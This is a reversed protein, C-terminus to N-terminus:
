SSENIMRWATGDKMEDIHFQCYSLHSVYRIMEDENYTNLNDIESLSTNCMTTAANPGLAIAPVGHMLAEIAAISNYTVLCHVDEQLAQSLTNYTIREARGPKLRVEIPRDTILKLEKIIIDTWEKQYPQNWFKMVKDSPPCILIKSGTKFKQYKYEPLARTLRDLPRDIIPTLNQLNNKTIRHWIKNKSTENGFYASDIAFFDKDNNWCYHMAEQCRKALGRILLPSENVSEKTWTSLKSGPISAEFYRLYSDFYHEKDAKPSFLHAVRDGLGPRAANYPTPIIIGQKDRVAM